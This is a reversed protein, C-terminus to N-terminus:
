LYGIINKIYTNTLIKKNYYREIASKRALKYKEGVTPFQKIFTFAEERFASKLHHLKQVPPLRSKHVSADFMDLFAPFDEVKGDFTPM